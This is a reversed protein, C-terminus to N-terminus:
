RGFSCWRKQTASREVVGLMRQLRVGRALSPEVSKGDAVGALFNHLCHVHGRLWGVTFKPGPFGAPKEYRHVTDIRTFGRAGGLPTEPAQLDYAELYNPQMPNFRLAGRDGHIEFRLEDNTGTAIKSAEITGLGGDSLRLLMVVQDEAEVKVMKGDSDPREPYLIRKEAFVSEFPGILYEMLDVIHSALDNIVGAGFKKEQKWGMKKGPDVSGAHLYEARFSTVKGVFGEDIMQKARMTAPFFRSQLTMQAIGSYSGLAAHIEEAEAANSVLPKDCYVHKGAEMAALLQVKHCNNPTCIHVIDVDDNEIVERFHTTAFEFGGDQKAKGATQERSTCVGVMRARVPAPDYYFGLTRYGYAHVRGIFGYGLIGVGVTRSM